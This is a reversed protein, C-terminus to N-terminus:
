LTPSGGAKESLRKKVRGVVDEMVWDDKLLVDLQETEFWSSLKDDKMSGTLIIVPVHAGWEDKRLLKLMTLGDMVPMNLDLMILAPHARLARELGEKGDAAENVRFGATELADRAVARILRSDEIILITQATEM